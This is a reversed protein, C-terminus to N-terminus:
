ARRVLGTFGAVFLTAFSWGLLQFLWGVAVYTEEVPSTPALECHDRAGTDILPLALDVGLAVQDVTSCPVAPQGPKAPTTVAASSAALALVFAVALALTIVLAVLSRWSQYGYGLLV